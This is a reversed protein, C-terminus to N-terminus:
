PKPRREEGQSPYIQKGDYSVDKGTEPHRVISLFFDDYCLAKPRGRCETEQFPMEDLLRAAEDPGKKCDDSDEFGLAKRGYMDQGRAMRQTKKEDVIEGPRAGTFSLLLNALGVLKSDM